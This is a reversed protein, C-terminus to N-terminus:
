AATTPGLLDELGIRRYFEQRIRDGVAYVVSAGDDAPDIVVRFPRADRPEVAV